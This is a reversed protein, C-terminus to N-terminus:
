SSLLKFEVNFFTSAAKVSATITPAFQAGESNSDVVLRAGEAGLLSIYKVNFQFSDDYFHIMAKRQSTPLDILIASNSKAKLQHLRAQCNFLCEVILPQGFRAAIPKPVPIHIRCDVQICICKIQQSM